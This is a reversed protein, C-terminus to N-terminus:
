KPYMQTRTPTQPNGTPKTTEGPNRYTKKPEKPKKFNWLVNKTM